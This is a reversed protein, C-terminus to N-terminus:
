PQERCASERGLWASAAIVAPDDTGTTSADVAVDPAIPGVHTGGLRDISVATTLNLASGDSLRIASNATPVGFTTAGFSRTLGRGIFAVVVGEAASATNGDTLVAVPATNLQTASDGAPRTSPDLHTNSITTVASDSTQYGFVARDRNVYGLFTGPGLLPAVAAMM